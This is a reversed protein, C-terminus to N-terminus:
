KKMRGYLKTLKLIREALAKSDFGPLARWTWNAMSLTGPFNMRAFAGLELWDQMQIICLRSVSGMCGRLIGRVLGEGENLGLYVKAFAVDEKPAEELWQVMTLNDHTGSYVV